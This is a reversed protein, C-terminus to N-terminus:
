NRLCMKHVKYSNKNEIKSDDIEKKLLTVNNILKENTDIDIELNKVM